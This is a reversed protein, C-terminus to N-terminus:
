SKRHGLRARQSAAVAADARRRVQLGVPKRGLKGVADDALHLVNGIGSYGADVKGAALGRQGPMEHDFDGAGGLLEANRGADDGRRVPGPRIPLCISEQLRKRRDIM